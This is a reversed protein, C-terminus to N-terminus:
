ATPVPEVFRGEHLEVVRDMLAAHEPRHTILVLTRGDLADLTV